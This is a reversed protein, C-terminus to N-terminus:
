KSGSRMNKLQESAKQDLGIGRSIREANARRSGLEFLRHLISLFGWIKVANESADNVKGLRSKEPPRM